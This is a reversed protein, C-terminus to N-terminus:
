RCCATFRALKGPWKSRGPFGAAPSRVYVTEETGSKVFASFTAHYPTDLHPYLGAKAWGVERMEDADFSPRAM